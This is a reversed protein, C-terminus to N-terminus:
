TSVSLDSRESARALPAERSSASGDKAEDASSSQEEARARAAGEPRQDKAENGM